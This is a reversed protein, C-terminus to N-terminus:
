FKATDQKPIKEYTIIRKRLNHRVTVPQQLRPIHLQNFVLLHLKNFATGTTLLPAWILSESCQIYNKHATSRMNSHRFILLHRINTVAPSLAGRQPIFGCDIRGTQEHVLRM